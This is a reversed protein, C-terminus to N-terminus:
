KQTRFVDDLKLLLEEQSASKLVYGDPKLRLVKTVAEKGDIGTLFIVPINKTEPKARLGQLVEQGSMEPMEYDLLIFDVSNKSLFTFAQEGSTVVSVKCYKMLNNRIMKAFAPDDDVVLAKRNASTAIRMSETSVYERLQAMDATKDFWPYNGLEPITKLVADHIFKECIVIISQRSQRLIQAASVLNNMDLQNDLIKSHLHLISVLPKANYRKIDQVNQQVRHVVFDLQDMERLVANLFINNQFAVVIIDQEPFCEVVEDEEDM